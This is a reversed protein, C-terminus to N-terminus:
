ILYGQVRYCIKTVSSWASCTSTLPNDKCQYHISVQKNHLLATSLMAASADPQPHSSLVGDWHSLWLVQQSWAATEPHANVQREAETFRDQLEDLYEAPMLQRLYRNALQFLLAEAPSLNM